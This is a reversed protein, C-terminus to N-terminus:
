SFSLTFIIKIGKQQDPRQRKTKIKTSSQASTHTHTHTYYWTRAPEYKEKQSEPFPVWPRVCALCICQWQAVDKAKDEFNKFKIIM